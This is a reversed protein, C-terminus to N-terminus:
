RPLRVLDYRELVWLVGAVDADTMGHRRGAAVLDERGIWQGHEPVVQYLRAALRATAETGVPTSDWRGPGSNWQRLLQDGSREARAGSRRIEVVSDWWGDPLQATRYDPRWIAEDANLVGAELLPKGDVLVTAGVAVMDCHITSEVNGGLSQNDGLAVHIAGAMKEDVLPIGTLEQVAPNAGFGVEALNAWDPDGHSQAHAIQSAHLFRAAPSQEPWIESLRGNKFTLVLGESASLVRGPISGNIHIEGSASLPVVFTEGPPLNAWTGDSIVGDSIGPTFDWGAIDVVLRYPRNRSDHTIIEIQQGLVLATALLHCHDRIAEYDTDAMRLTDLTMGPAHAVKIRRSWSTRLVRRRYNLHEPRDSLCSLVADCERIAAEVPLALIEDPAFQVQTEYPVFFISAYVDLELATNAILGAADLSGPDAFIVLNQDPRLQLSQTIVAHAARALVPDSPVAPTTHPHHKDKM